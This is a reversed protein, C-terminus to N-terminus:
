FALHRMGGHMFSGGIYGQVAIAVTMLGLLAWYVTRPQDPAQRARASLYLLVVGAAAIGTGLWRHLMLVQNRDTLYFGGAFWGLAAAVIAGVAGVMLMVHAAAQYQRDRRWLGYVEVGLAGVFMAIPFHTVVTHLRGFWSVLRQSFTKNEEAAAEHHEAAMDHADALNEHLNAMADSPKTTEVAADVRGVEKPGPGAGLAEHNEHALGPSASAAVIMATVILLGTLRSQVRSGMIRQKFEM